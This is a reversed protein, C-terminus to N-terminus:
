SLFSYYFSSGYAVLYSKSDTWLEHSVWDEPINSIDCWKIKTSQPNFFSDFFNQIDMVNKAALLNNITDVKLYNLGGALSDKYKLCSMLMENYNSENINSNKLDDNFLCLDKKNRSEIQTDWMDSNPCVGFKAGNFPLVIYLQGYSRAMATNTTCILRRSRKPYDKWSPLNDFLLTYYNKTNQSKREKLKPDTLYLNNYLKQMGKYVKRGEKYATLADSCNHQINNWLQENNLSDQEESRIDWTDLVESIKMSINILGETKSVYICM